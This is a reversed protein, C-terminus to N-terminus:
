ERVTMDDLPGSGFGLGSVPGAAFGAGFGAERGPLASLVM